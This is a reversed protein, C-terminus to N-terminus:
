FTQSPTTTNLFSQSPQVNSKKNRFEIKIIISLFPHDIQHMDQNFLCLFIVYRYRLSRYATM